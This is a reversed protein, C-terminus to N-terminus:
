LIYKKIAVAVGDEDNSLTIDDAYQKVADPANGMAIGLGAFEIMNIDNYNDGIAIVESRQIDYKKCLVEIASTKSANNPMMELYTPKSLYINLNNSNYDKIKTNLVEIENQDAM